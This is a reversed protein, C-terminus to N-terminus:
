EEMKPKFDNKRPCNECMVVMNPKRLLADKAIDIAITTM